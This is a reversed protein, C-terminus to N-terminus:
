NFKFLCTSINDAEGVQCNPFFFFTLLHTFKSGQAKHPIVAHAHPCGNEELSAPEEASPLQGKSATWPRNTKCAYVYVRRVESCLPWM